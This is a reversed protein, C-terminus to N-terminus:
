TDATGGGYEKGLRTGFYHDGAPALPLFLSWRDLAYRQRGFSTRSFPRTALRQLKPPRRSFSHLFKAPQIHRESLPDKSKM